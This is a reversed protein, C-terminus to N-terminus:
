GRKAFLTIAEFQHLFAIPTVDGTTSVVEVGARVCMDIWGTVTFINRGIRALDTVIVASIEGKSIAENMDKFAPRNVTLGSIGMDAYCIFDTHGHETAYQALSDRQWKLAQENNTTVRCYIATLKNNPQKMYGGKQSDSVIRKVALCVTKVSYIIGYKVITTM